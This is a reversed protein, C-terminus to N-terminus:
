FFPRTYCVSLKKFKSQRTSLDSSIILDDEELEVDFNDYDEPLDKFLETDDDDEQFVYNNRAKMTFSRIRSFFHALFRLLLNKNDKVRRTTAVCILVMLKAM